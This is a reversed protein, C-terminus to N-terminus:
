LGAVSPFSTATPPSPKAKRVLEKVRLCQAERAGVERTGLYECQGLLRAARQPVPRRAVMHRAALWAALQGNPRIDRRTLSVADRTHRHPRSRRRHPRTQHQQETLSRPAPRLGSNRTLGSRAMLIGTAVGIREHSKVAQQLQHAKRELGINELALSAYAAFVAGLNIVPHSTAPRRSYVALVGLDHGGVGVSVGGRVSGTVGRGAQVADRGGPRPPSTRRRRHDPPQADDAVGAQGTAARPHRDDFEMFAADTYSDLAMAGGDTLHWIATGASQLADRALRAVMARVQTLDAQPGVAGGIEAFTRVVDVEDVGSM